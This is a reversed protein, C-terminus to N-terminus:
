KVEREILLKNCFDFWQDKFRDVDIMFEEGFLDTMQEQYKPDFRVSNYIHTYVDMIDSDGLSHLVQLVCDRCIMNSRENNAKCLENDCRRM